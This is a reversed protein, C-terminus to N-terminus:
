EESEEETAVEKKGKRKRASTNVINRSNSYLAFFEPSSTKFLRILKDLKDYVISDAAVFLERLKDTHFKRESMVGSPANLLNDSQAIAADLEIIDTNDIGYDRLAENNNKAETVIIKALTLVAQGHSNYFMTKNVNVKELLYNNTTDFAYVYLADSVKLSIEVLRDIASSKAKTASRSITATQQQTVSQIDTVRARLGKVSNVFAPITAYESENGELVNLVKQYMNLKADQRDTM